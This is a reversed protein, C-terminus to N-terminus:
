TLFNPLINEWQKPLVGYAETLSCLRVDWFITVNIAVSKKTESKRGVHLKTRHKHKKKEKIQGYMAHKPM